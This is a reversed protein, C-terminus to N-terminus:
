LITTCYRHLMAAMESRVANKAPGFSGDNYGIVIGNNSAWLVASYAWFQVSSADTFSLAGVAAPSGTFRYLMTVIEARSIPATPDFITPGKGNTICNNYAWMIAEYSWNSVLDTFPSTWSVDYKAGSLRYLVTVFMERTMNTGPEFTTASMGNMLRNQWVYEVDARYWETAPVDVFPFPLYMGCNACQIDNGFNHGTAKIPESVSLVEKCVSCHSGETRGGTTCTAEIAETDIVKTHGKAPDAVQKQIIEDCDLCKIEATLGDKTCTPEVAAKVTVTNKHECVNLPTVTLTAADTLHMTSGDTSLNYILCVFSRGNDKATTNAISLTDTTSLAYNGLKTIIGLASTITGSEFNVDGFNLGSIASPEIWLYKYETNDTPIGLINDRNIKVNFTATEGEKVTVDAPGTVDLESGILGAILQVLEFPDLNNIIDGIDIGTDEGKILATILAILQDMDLSDIIPGIDENSGLLEKLLAILDDQDLGAIIGSIDADGNILSKILATLQEIDLNAIITSITEDDGSGILSGIIGAILEPDLSGLLESLDVDEGAILAKIAAALNEVPIQEIIAGIDGLDANDGILAKILAELQTPDLKELLEEINISGLDGGSTILAEVVAKVVEPDIAAVVASITEDDVSGILTKLLEALEATNLKDIISNIDFGGSVLGEIVAPLQDAPISEIISGIDTNTGIFREILAILQKTSLGNLMSSIDGSGSILDKIQSATASTDVSGVDGSGTEDAMAYVPLMTFVLVLVMVLSIIRKKM